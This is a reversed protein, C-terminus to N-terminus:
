AAAATKRSAWHSLFGLGAFGALMMGWTSHEPVQPVTASLVLDEPDMGDVTTGPVVSWSFIDGGNCKFAGGVAGCAVGDFSFSTLGNTLGDGTEVIDFTEGSTLRGRPQRYSQWSAFGHRRRDVPEAPNWARYRTREAFYRHLQWHHHVRGARGPQPRSRGALL